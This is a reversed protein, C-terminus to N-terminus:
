DWLEDFQVLCVGVIEKANLITKGDVYQKLDGSEGILSAHLCAKPVDEYTVRKIFVPQRKSIAVVICSKFGKKPQPVVLDITIVYIERLPKRNRFETAYISLQHIIGQDEINNEYGVKSHSFHRISEQKFHVVDSKWTIGKFQSLVQKTTM